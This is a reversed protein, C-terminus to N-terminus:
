QRSHTEAMDKQNEKECPQEKTVTVIGKRPIYKTRIPQKNVVDMLITCGVCGTTIFETESFRICTQCLNTKM